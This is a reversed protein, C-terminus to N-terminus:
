SRHLWAGLAILREEKRWSKVEDPRLGKMLEDCDDVQLRESATELISKEDQDICPIDLAALATRTADRIAEGEAIHIHAHSGLTNELDGLRGRATLMVARQWDLERAALEAGFDGLRVLAAAAQKERGRRIVGEPDKPRPSQKLGHWGGAVHYPEVAERDKTKFLDLREAHCPTPTQSNIMVAVANVWGLHAKFAVCVDM